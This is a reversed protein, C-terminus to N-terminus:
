GTTNLERLRQENLARNRQAIESRSLKKAPANKEGVVKILTFLRNLHWNECEFPINGSLMWYYIVEATVIERNPKDPVEQFWTATMPATIYANIADLNESSLRSFVEPPVNPTLTMARIYGLTEETTKDKTSLFPKRFESEWKSLSALSHELQLELDGMTSFEDAIEDYFEDGLITITLM